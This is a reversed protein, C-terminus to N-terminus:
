LLEDLYKSFRSFVGRLNISGAIADVDDITM